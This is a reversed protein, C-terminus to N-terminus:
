CATRGQCDYGVMSLARGSFGQEKYVLTALSQGGIEGTVM